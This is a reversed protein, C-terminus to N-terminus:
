RDQFGRELRMCSKRGFLRTLPKKSFTPSEKRWQRFSLQNQWARSNDNFSFRYGLVKQYDGMPLFNATSWSSGKAIDGKHDLVSSM